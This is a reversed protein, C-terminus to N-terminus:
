KDLYDEFWDQPESQNAAAILEDLDPLVNPVYENVLVELINGREFADCTSDIIFQLMDLAQRLEPTRRKQPIGEELQRWAVKLHYLQNRATSYKVHDKM